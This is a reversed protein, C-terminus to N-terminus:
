RNPTIKARPNLRYLSTPRGGKETTAQPTAILWGHDVLLECAAEAEDPTAMGSWGKRRVVRATFEEPLPEAGDGLRRLLAKAAETEAVTGAGYVRAAHSELYDAMSLARELASLSVAEGQWEAVHILLALAPVLKRYKGLHGEFAPAISDSRLRIEFANRWVRFREQADPAFRFTPVGDRGMQAGAEILDEPTLSEFGQFLDAAEQEAKRDLPRDVDRWNPSVDPWVMLSFRQLFGDAGQANGNAARVHSAIVGPQISGLLSLVCHEVRRTGRMIRDFTFSEKGSWAQLLFARLAQNGDKNLLAFLGALEDQYLLTGNPNDRLVEGLAEISADNVIFRRCPTALAEPVVLTTYDFAEGNKTAKTARSELEKRKYKAEIESAMDTIKSNEHRNFEATEMTRLPRMAAQMAPSKLLSPRGILMGWLHGFETFGEDLEKPQICFRRGAVSSLAVLAAMAPYDPPCQMREAIDAIWLRLPSPMWDPNFPTVPALTATLPRPEPLDAEKLVESAASSVEAEIHALTAEDLPKVDRNIFVLEQLAEGRNVGPLRSLRSPNCCNPDFGLPLALLRKAMATYAEEDPADVRVWAHYSKGGSDVLLAVPLGLSRLLWLVRLQVPKPLSDSEMVVFRFSSVDADSSGLSGPKVPNPRMWAGAARHLNRVAKGRGSTLKDMNVTYGHGSPCWKDKKLVASTVLNVTEGPAYLCSASREQASARKWTELDCEIGAAFSEAVKAVDKVPSPNRGSPAATGGKAAERAFISRLLRRLSDPGKETREDWPPDCQLNYECLVDFAEEENLGLRVLKGALSCTQANGHQEQIAPKTALMVARAKALM